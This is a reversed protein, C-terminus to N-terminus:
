FTGNFANATADSATTGQGEDFAWHGVLATAAVPLIKAARSAATATALSAIASSVAAQTVDPVVSVVTAEIVATQLTTKSGVTYQGDAVGETTLSILNNASTISDNLVTKTVVVPAADNSKSCSAFVWAILLVIAAGLLVKVNKTKM